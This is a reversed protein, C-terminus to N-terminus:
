PRGGSAVSWAYWFAGWAILSLVAGALRLQRRTM